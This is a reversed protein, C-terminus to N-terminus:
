LLVVLGIVTKGYERCIKIERELDENQSKGAQELFVVGDAKTMDEMAKADQLISFGDKVSIGRRDLMEKLADTSEGACNVSSNFYIHKMGGKECYLAINSVAMQLQQEKSLNRYDKRSFGDIWSDVKGFPGAAEKHAEEISGLKPVGLYAGINDEAKLKGSLIYAMARIMCVLFAGLVAGLLINKVRVQPTPPAVEETEEEEEQGDTGEEEEEDERVLIEGAYLSKQNDNFSAKYSAINNELGLIVNKRNQQANYVDNDVTVEVSENVLSLKHKGFVKEIESQYSDLDEELVSIIKRLQQEDAYKIIVTFSSGMDSISFLEGFYPLEAEVDAGVAKLAKKRWQGDRLRNIYSDVIEGAVDKETIGAYNVKYDTDVWYQLRAISVNYPDMTMLLSSDMYAEQQEYEKELRVVKAVAKIEEEPMERRLQGLTLVAQEKQEEDTAPQAAQFDRLNKIERAYQLGTVVVAMLLMWVLISRWGKAVYVLLDILNIEREETNM